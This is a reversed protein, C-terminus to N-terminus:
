SVLCKSRPLFAMVLMSLMNFLLSMVKSVFIRRTLAIIKGTTKYLHSLQFMFFASCWLVSPKLSPHQLLSKLTRQIALLDFWDILGLPFWGQINMSLALASASAGISQSGSAFLWSMPFSGSAQFFQLCSFPIVSSSITAHCWRSLPCSNSCVGPFPSPCPLRVISCHAAMKEELPDEWGLSPVLVKQM